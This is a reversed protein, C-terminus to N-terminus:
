PPILISCNKLSFSRPVSTLVSAIAPSVVNMVIAYMRATLGFMRPMAPMSAPATKVAVASEDASPVSQMASRAFIGSASEAAIPSFAYKANVTTMPM